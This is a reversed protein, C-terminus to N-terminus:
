FVADIEGVGLWAADFWNPSPNTTLIRPIIPCGAGAQALVILSPGLAVGPDKGAINARGRRDRVIAFIM